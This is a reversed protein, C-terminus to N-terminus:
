GHFGTRGLHIIVTDGPGLPRAQLGKVGKKPGDLQERWNNGAWLEIDQDLLSNVRGVELKM